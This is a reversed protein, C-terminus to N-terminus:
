EEDEGYVHEVTVWENGLNALIGTYTGDSPIPCLINGEETQYEVTVLPTMTNREDYVLVINEKYKEDAGFYGILYDCLERITNVKVPFDKRLANFADLVEEETKGALKGITCIASGATCNCMHHVNQNKNTEVNKEIKKAKSSM